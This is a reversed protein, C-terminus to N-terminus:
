ERATYVRRLRGVGVGDSVSTGAMSGRRRGLVVKAGNGQLVGESNEWLDDTFAQDMEDMRDLVEEPPEEDFVMQLDAHAGFQEWFGGWWGKGRGLDANANRKWLYRREYLSIM